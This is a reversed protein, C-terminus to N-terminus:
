DEISRLCSKIYDFSDQSLKELKIQAAKIDDNEIDFTPNLTYDFLSRDTIGFQALIDKKRNDHSGSEEFTYFPIGLKISIATAHFSNTFVVTANQILSLFDEPGADNIKYAGYSAIGNNANIFYVPQGMRKSISKMLKVVRLSNHRGLFYCLIYEKNPSVGKSALSMYEKAPILLTPDMVCCCKLEPEITNLLRVGTKERISVYKFKKINEMFPEMHEVKANGMSAAYSVVPTDLLSITFYINDFDVTNPNWVQDSGVFILDYVDDLKKLEDNKRGFSMDAIDLYNERFSDFKNIRTRRSRYHPLRVVNKIFSHVNLTTEFMSNHSCQMDTKYNIIETDAGMSKLLLQLAYVQLAAGYNNAFHYTLIGVKM